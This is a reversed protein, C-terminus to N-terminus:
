FPKLVMLAVIVLTAGLLTIGVVTGRRSLRQYDASDPGGEDLARIQQTLTPTYLGHALGLLVILLVLSGSTWVASWSFHGMTVMGGGSLLLGVYAWNAVRDLARITELMFKQTDRSARAARMLIIGYSANYGVAVIAFVIHLLKVFLYPTPM